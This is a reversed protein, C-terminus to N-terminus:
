ERPHRMVVGVSASGRIRKGRLSEGVTHLVLGAQNALSCPSVLAPVVPRMSRALAAQRAQGIAFPQRLRASALGPMVDVPIQAAVVARWRVTRRPRRSSRSPSPQIPTTAACSWPCTFAFRRGLRAETPPARFWSRCGASLWVRSPGQCHSNGPVISGMPEVSGFWAERASLPSNSYQDGEVRRLVVAAPVAGIALGLNPAPVQPRAPARLTPTGSRM